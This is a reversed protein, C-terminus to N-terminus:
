TVPEYPVLNALRQPMPQTAPAEITGYTSKLAVDPDYYHLFFAIRLPEVSPVDYGSSIVSTGDESLFVEDYPAQDSTAQGFDGVDFSADRDRVILELLVAGKLEENMHREAELRDRESLQAGEYKLEMATAVLADTVEVRYAGVVEITPNPM